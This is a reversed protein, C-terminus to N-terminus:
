PIDRNSPVPKNTSTFSDPPPPQIPNVVLPLLPIHRNSGLGDSLHVTIYPIGM